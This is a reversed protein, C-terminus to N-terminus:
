SLLVALIHSVYRAPFSSDQLLKDTLEFYAPKSKWEPYFSPTILEKYQPLYKGSKKIYCTSAKAKERYQRDVYAAISKHVATDEEPLYYYEKYNPYFYKLEGEIAPVTLYACDTHFSLVIGNRALQPRGALIGPLPLRISLQCNEYSIDSVEAPRCFFDTCSLLVAIDLLDEVDERNHLLLIPLLQEQDGSRMFKNKIYRSYVEILEGGDYCDNRHIKLAQEVTKLKLNDYGLCKKFPLIKKYIDISEVKDFNYELNYQRCKKLLYPIDFGSGNYHVLAKYSRLTNFFEHLIAEESVYDDAFWQVTNWVGDTLRTMGILYVSSIDASFGTTEIDFFALEEDQFAPLFSYILQKNCINEYKLM